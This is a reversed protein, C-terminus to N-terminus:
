IPSVTMKDAMNHGLALRSDKVSIVIPGQGSSQIVEIECGLYLGMATLRNRMGRGCNSSVLKVKDGNEADSLLM